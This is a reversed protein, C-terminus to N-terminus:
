VCIRHEECLQASLFEAALLFELSAFFSDAGQEILIMECTLSPSSFNVQLREYDKGSWVQSAYMEGCVVRPENM